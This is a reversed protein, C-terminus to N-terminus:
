FSGFIIPSGVTVGNEGIFVHLNVKKGKFEKCYKIKNSYCYYSVGEPIEEVKVIEGKYENLFLSLDFDKQLKFSEGKVRGILLGSDAKIIRGDSGLSTYVVLTDICEYFVPKANASFLVFILLPSLVLALFRKLM